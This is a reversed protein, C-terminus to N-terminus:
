PHQAATPPGSNLMRPATYYTFAELQEALTKAHAAGRYPARSLAARIPYVRQVLGDVRREGPVQLVMELSQAAGDLDRLMLRAMAQDAAAEGLLKPPQQVPQALVLDLAGSSAEQAQTPEGLQLLASGASMLRRPESFGFEGGVGDHVDDHQDRDADAAAELALRTQEPDGLHAHARAAISARRATGTGGLQYQEARRVLCVAETPQGEWYALLALTCDAYAQLPGHGIVEGHMRATRALEAAAQRSGLDFCVQSLLATILGAAFHLDREQTPFRTRDLLESVQTNLRRAERYTDVPSTSSYASALRLVDDQLQELSAEPVRRSAYDGARGSAEHAMMILESEDIVTSAAQADLGTPPALLDRLPRGFMKALILGAPGYVTQQGGNRLRHWRRPDVRESAIRSDRTEAALRRATHQFARAFDPHPTLGKQEALLALLTAHQEM